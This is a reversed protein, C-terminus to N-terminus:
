LQRAAVAQRLRRRRGSVGADAAAPRAVARAARPAPASSQPAGGFLDIHWQCVRNVDRALRELDAEQRGTIAIEHRVGGAAFAALAFDSMEVPHDILEDYGDARYRGFGHPPAGDPTLTTAVRM